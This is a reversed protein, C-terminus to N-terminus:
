TNVDNISVKINEKIRIGFRWPDDLDGNRFKPPVEKNTTRAHLRRDVGENEYGIGVLLKPLCDYNMASKMEAKDFASCIGTKYGLLTASLILEGVSIGISYNKQETYLEWVESNKNNNTHALRHTGARAEGDYDCYVFLLNSLIQSNHLSRDANQWFKGEREEFMGKTEKDNRDVLAYHKTNNYIQEIKSQNTYVKLQYHTENQKSPSNTAAHLLTEFDNQPISKSLDYNRQAHQSINVAIKLDDNLAM